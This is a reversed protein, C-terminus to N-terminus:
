GEVPPAKTPAITSFAESLIDPNEFDAVVDIRSGRPLAIPKTFWYRRGWDARTNLRILPAHSGDPLSATVQVTINAPVQEPSISFAQVDEDIARSFALTRNAAGPAPPPPSVISLRLLPQASKEPAFYVGVTSRDSLSQGEFQWSKKYHIRVGLQSG